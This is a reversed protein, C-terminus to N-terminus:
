DHMEIARIAFRLFDRETIIGVLKREGDVVPLCGFKHDLLTQGAASALTEPEVTWVDRTMIEAVLTQERARLLDRHTVIGVLRREDDIVPLHRLHKYKMIEGALPLTQEAFFTVVPSKMLHKVRVQLGPVPCEIPQACARAIDLTSVVGVLKRDHDVVLVHHIDERSMKEAAQSVTAELGVSVACPMMLERATPRADPLCEVVDQKTVIGIPHGGEDVIPVCGVHQDRFLALLRSAPLEPTATVLRRSMIQTIPVLDMESM